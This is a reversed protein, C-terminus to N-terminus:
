SENKILPFTRTLHKRLLADETFRLIEGRVVSYSHGRVDRNVNSELWYGMFYSSSAITNDWALKNSVYVGSKFVRIQELYNFRMCFCLWNLRM